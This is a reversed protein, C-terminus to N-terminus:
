ENDSGAISASELGSTGNDQPGPKVNERQEKTSGWIEQASNM